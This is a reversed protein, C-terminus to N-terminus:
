ISNYYYKLIEYVMDIASVYLEMWEDIICNGFCTYIFELKMEDNMSLVDMRMAYPMNNIFDNWKSNRIESVNVCRFLIHSLSGNNELCKCIFGCKVNNTVLAKLMVKIKYLLRPKKRGVQWWIFGTKMDIKALRFSILSRYLCLTAYWESREKTQLCEKVTNKWQINTKVVLGETLLNEFGTNVNLKMCTNVFNHVPGAKCLKRKYDLYRNLVIRKYIGGNLMGIQGVFNLLEKNIYTSLRNWKLSALAVVAPTNSNLGQINKAINVHFEDLKKISSSSLSLLYSGYCLKSVVTAWYAKSFTHPNISIRPTSIAKILWVKKFAGEIKEEIEIKEHCSKTYLPTGLYNTSEVEEIHERGLKIKVNQKSKGFTMSICKKPNFKFKWKCSYQYALDVMYQLGKRDYSMIAIDDAFTPCALIENYMQLGFGCDQLICLLDDFYIQFLLGSLPGGQHVGQEVCFSRSRYKGIQVSMEFNRFSDRVIKWIVPHLDKKILKYLLGNQWVKDFAKEIDLCALHVTKDNEGAYHIAERVLFNTHLSSINPKGAGQTECTIHSGRIRFNEEMKMKIVKEYLKGITTLLTIGRNNGKETLDQKGPKPIPVILGYKFVVPFLGMNLANNFLKTLVRILMNGGYKIHESEIEDHGSAKKNKLGQVLKKIEGETIFLEKPIDRSQYKQQFTKVYCEIENHFESYQANGVSNQFLTEYYAAWESVIDKPDTVLNGNDSKIPNITTGRNGNNNKAKKLLYWLFNGNLEKENEIEEIMDQEYQMQASRQQQRFVRKAEKYESFLTNDGRPRGIQCWNKYTKRKEKVVANLVQSNYRWYPKTHKNYKSHPLNKSIKQMCGIVAKIMEETEEVKDRYYCTHHDLITNVVYLEDQLPCTYKMYIDDTTMKKWAIRPKFSEENTERIFKPCEVEISVSQHDSTNAICEDAVVCEIVKLNNSVIVHDIYSMGINEKKYSYVPGKTSALIDVIYLENRMVFNSLKKAQATTKGWCRPGVEPGFHCNTDGIVIVEGQLKCQNVIVDLESIYETFCSIKCQQQPLYVGIIFIKCNKGDTYELTIMRDNSYHPLAKVYNNLCMKWYAALGGHGFYKGIRQDPLQKSACAYVNYNCNDNLKFLECNFMKHEIVFTVDYMERIQDLYNWKSNIGNANWAIIKLSHQSM